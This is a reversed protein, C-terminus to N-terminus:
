PAVAKIGVRSAAREMREVIQAQLAVAANFDRVLEAVEDRPEIPQPVSYGLEACLYEMGVHCGRARAMRLILLTQEPSLKHPRDANLCDLLKRQAQDPAFEPFLAAGVPKSGGCAKVCEILADNLSEM